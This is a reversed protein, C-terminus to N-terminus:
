EKLKYLNLLDDITDDISFKCNKLKQYTDRREYNTYNKIRDIWEGINNETIGLFEASEIIKAERTIHNSFLVPLGAAQAEVGVIPLGEFHSPLLFIDIAQLLEDVDNSIGYFLILDDLKKEHALFRIKEEEPGEGILLLRIDSDCEKIKEMIQLLYEHNKQYAFRGIHGLIIKKELGLKKRIEIRKEPNYRFKELNIGNNIIKIDETKVNPFMWEGAMDSCAVYDTGISKLLRRCIKHFLIKLGRHNGDVGAAHSHLIIKKTGAYKAALGSVLLKNAVDAHIHVCEYPQERLLKKLRSYCMFQKKWKNGKYGIYHVDCNYKKLMEINQLDVFREIAGIDIKINTKNNIIINKVLSYVGGMHLDDVNVELVKM